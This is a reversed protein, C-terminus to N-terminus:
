AADEPGLVAHKSLRNPALASPAPESHTALITIGSRLQRGAGLLRRAAVLIAAPCPRQFLLMARDRCLRLWVNSQMCQMPVAGQLAFWRAFCIEWSITPNGLKMCVLTCVLAELKM